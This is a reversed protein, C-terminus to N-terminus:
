RGKVAYGRLAMAIRYDDDTVDLLSRQVQGAAHTRRALWQDFDRKRVLVIRGVRYSPLPDVKAAMLRQLTRNSLGSYRVLELPRFYRDGDDDTEAM